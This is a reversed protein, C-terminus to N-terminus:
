NTEVRSASVDGVGEKVLEFILLRSRVNVAYITLRKAITLWEGIWKWIRIKRSLVQLDWAVCLERLVARQHDAARVQCLRLQVKGVGKHLSGLEDCLIGGTQRCRRLKDIGHQRGDLVIEAHIQGRLPLIQDIKVAREAAAPPDTAQAVVVRLRVRYVVPQEDIRLVVARKDIPFITAVQTSVRVDGAEPEPEALHVASRQAIDPFLM